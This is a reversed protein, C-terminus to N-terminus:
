QYKVGSTRRARVLWELLLQLGPAALQDLDSRVDAVIEDRGYFDGVSM